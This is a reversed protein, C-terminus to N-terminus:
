TTQSTFSERAMLYRGAGPVLATGDESSSPLQEVNISGANYRADTGCMTRIKEFILYECTFKTPLIANDPIYYGLACGSIQSWVWIDRGKPGHLAFESCTEEALFACKSISFPTMFPDTISHCRPPPLGINLQINHGNISLLPATTHNTQTLSLIRPVTLAFPMVLLWDLLTSLLFISPRQMNHRVRHRLTLSTKRVQDHLFPRAKSSLCIRVPYRLGIAYVPHRVDFMIRLTAYSSSGSGRSPPRLYTTRIILGKEASAALWRAM